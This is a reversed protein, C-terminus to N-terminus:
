SEEKGIFNWHIRVKKKTRVSKRKKVERPNKKNNYQISREITYLKSCINVTNKVYVYIISMINTNNM